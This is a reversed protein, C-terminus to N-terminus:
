KSHSFPLCKNSGTTTMQRRQIDTVKNHTIFLISRNAHRACASIAAAGTDGSTAGLVAIKKEKNKAFHNLLSGLLQM